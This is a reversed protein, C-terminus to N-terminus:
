LPAGLRDPQRSRGPLLPIRRLTQDPALWRGKQTDLLRWAGDVYLEAWNHYDSAKLVANNDIEYGGVMRAPIGSARALAVTLYAHETCDGKRKDLAYAAGRDDAVYGSYNMHQKVWNYIAQATDSDHAHKLSKALMQISPNATEIYRESTLWAQPNDLPELKPETRLSVDAVLAVIKTALPAIQPLSLGIISHGLPDIQREFPMSVKISDLKQTPTEGAPMYFWLKQDVLRYPKPNALTLTFRLQRQIVENEPIAQAYGLQTIPVGAIAALCLKLCDRRRMGHGKGDGVADRDTTKALPCPRGM